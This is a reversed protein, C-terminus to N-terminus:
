ALLDDVAVVVVAELVVILPVTTINTYGEVVGLDLELVDYVDEFKWNVADLERKGTDLEVREDVPKKEGVNEVVRSGELM